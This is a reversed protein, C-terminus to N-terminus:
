LNPLIICLMKQAWYSALMRKVTQFYDASLRYGPAKGGMSSFRRRAKEGSGVSQGQSESSSYERALIALNCTGAFNLILYIILQKDLVNSCLLEEQSLFGGLPSYRQFSFVPILLGAFVFVTEM